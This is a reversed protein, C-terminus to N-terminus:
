HLSICNLVYKPGFISLPALFFLFVQGFNGHLRGFPGGALTQLVSALSTIMEFGHPELLILDSNLM